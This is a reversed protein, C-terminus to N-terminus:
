LALKRVAGRRKAPAPTRRGLLRPLLSLGALLANSVAVTPGFVPVRTFLVGQGHRTFWQRCETYAAKPNADAATVIFLPFLIGVTAAGEFYPLVAGVVIMLSGFGAFYAWQEEVAQTSHELPVAHLKWKYDFCYLGYLWSFLVFSLAVGVRPVLAAASATLFFICFLLSRYIEQSLATIADQRRVQVLRASAPAVAGAANVLQQQAERQAALATREAIEGYWICSVFFSIVYAPLLWLLTYLADFLRM